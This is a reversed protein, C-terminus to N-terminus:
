PVSLKLARRKCNNGSIYKYLQYHAFVLAIITGLFHLIVVGNCAESIAVIAAINSFTAMFYNLVM